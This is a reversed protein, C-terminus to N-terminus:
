EKSNQFALHKVFYENQLNYYGEYEDLISNNKIDLLSNGSEVHITGEDKNLSYFKMVPSQAIASYEANLSLLHSLLYDHTTIFLQVGKSALIMVFDAVVKILNPNLNSEPEDWFLISNKNLEGNLVLYMVSALKRIGEAVLHAEMKGGQEDLDKIYFRGHEKIVKLNLSNELPLILESINEARPGKLIPANLAEAFKIYTADFSVERNKILGLFGEYLSFMERPPIYLQQIQRNLSNNEIKVSTKSNTAFSYKLTKSRIKISIASSNRGPQRKVLRGLQMPKFYSVLNEALLGEMREKAQSTAILFDNNAQITAAMLKLLHTKGTGNRGIIVNIGKCFNFENESFTTFGSVKLQQIM